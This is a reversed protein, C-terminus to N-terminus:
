TTFSFPGATYTGYLSSAIARWFYTTGPALAPSVTYSTTMINSTDNVINSFDSTTSIQVRYATAYPAATWTLLPTTGVGTATDAPTTLSFAGPAYATSSGGGYGGCSITLLVVAAIALFLRMRFLSSGGPEVKLTRM